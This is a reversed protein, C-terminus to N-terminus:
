IGAVPGLRDVRLEVEPAALLSRLLNGSPVSYADARAIDVQYGLDALSAITMRSIPNVPGNIFGTMLETGFTSERWHSDATGPGGTSEVPVSGSGGLASWEAVARAGTFRPDSTGGGTLFVGPKTATWRTGIGLMHGMEHTIVATLTGSTILNSLDALDFEMVGFRPLGDGTSVLCPGARALVSGAGDIATTSIDIVLDDVVEDIAGNLAGCGNAGITARVAPVGATVIGEWRAEAASFAAQAEASLATQPRLVIDFTESSGVTVSLGVTSQASETGDSVTFRVAYAGTDGITLNRSRSGQCDPLTLESTGDAGVDIDCTLSDGQPDAVQWAFAILAPAAATTASSTFSTIVPATGTTPVTTSTPSAPAATCAAAVVALAALAAVRGAHRVRRLTVRDHHM